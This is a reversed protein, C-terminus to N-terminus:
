RAVINYHSLAAMAFQTEVYFALRRCHETIHQWACPQKALQFIRRIIKKTMPLTAVPAEYPRAPRLKM